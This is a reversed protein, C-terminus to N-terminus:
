GTTGMASSLQSSNGEEGTEGSRRKGSSIDRGRRRENDIESVWRPSALQFSARTDADRSVTTIPVGHAQSHGTVECSCVLDKSALGESTAQLVTQEGGNTGQTAGVVSTTGDM